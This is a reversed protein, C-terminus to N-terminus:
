DFYAEFSNGTTVKMADARLWSLHAEVSHGNGDDLRAISRLHSHMSGLKEGIYGNGDCHRENIEGLLSIVGVSQKYIEAAKSPDFSMREALTVIADCAQRINELSLRADAKAAEEARAKLGDQEDQLASLQSYLDDKVEDESDGTSELSKPETSESPVVKYDVVDYFVNGYYYPAGAAESQEDLNIDYDFMSDDFAASM